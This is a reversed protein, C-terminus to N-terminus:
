YLSLFYRKAKIKFSNRNAIIKLEHPLNNWIDCGRNSIFKKTVALAHRNPRLHNAARTHYNHIDNGRIYQVIPTTSNLQQHVFKVTSLKNIDEFKLINLSKFLNHTHALYPAAALIRIIKKQATIIPKLVSSNAVGWVSNGYHLHSHVLSYYLLKKAGQNLSNRTRWIIGINRNVKKLVYNVQESWTFKDDIFVGLFKTVRKQKLKTGGLFLSVNPNIRRRSFILFHTKDMNILLRNCCFWENIKGLERKM